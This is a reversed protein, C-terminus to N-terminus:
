LYLDFRPRSVSVYLCRLAESRRPNVMIDHWNVYVRDFTSGQSRHATTAYAHRVSHFAEKLNWFSKWKNREIKAVAALEALRKNMRVQEDPHLSFLTIGLGEDTSVALRYCRFDRYIPHRVESVYEIIGEEDTSAAIRDEPDKAPELLTIREGVQWLCEHPNELLRGRITKNLADVTVNRWAIAKAEGTRFAEADALMAGTIGEKPRWVGHEDHDDVITLQGGGTEILGRVHTALKLIQNDHRMVKTLIEGTQIDWVKSHTEKVPPLQWPDGMFIWRINPHSESAQQIYGMIQSGLMGAEDVVVVDYDSLDLDDKMKSLSKVEGTPTMMLGLLSYITCSPVSDGLMTRIVKVAKNTPATIVSRAYVKSLMERLCSTKGTGAAGSLIFYPEASENCHRVMSEIAKEQEDNFKFNM